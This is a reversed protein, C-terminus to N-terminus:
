ISILLWEYVHLGEPDLLSDFIVDDSSRKPKKPKKMPPKYKRVAPVTPNYLKILIDTFHDKKSTTRADKEHIERMVKHKAKFYISLIM